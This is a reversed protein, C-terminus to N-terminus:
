LGVAAVNKVNEAEDAIQAGASHIDHGERHTPSLSCDSECSGIVSGLEHDDGTQQIEDRHRVSVVDGDPFFLSRLIIVMWSVCKLAARTNASKADTTNPM